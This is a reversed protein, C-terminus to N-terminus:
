VVTGIVSSGHPETKTTKRLVEVAVVRVSDKCLVVSNAVTSPGQFSVNWGSRPAGGEIVSSLIAEQLSFESVPTFYKEPV